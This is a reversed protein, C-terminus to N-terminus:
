SKLISLFLIDIRHEFKYSDWTKQLWYSKAENIFNNLSFLILNFTNVINLRFLAKSQELIFFM